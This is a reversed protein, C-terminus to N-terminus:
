KSAPLRNNKGMLDSYSLRKYIDTLYSKAEPYYQSKKDIKKFHYGAMELKDQKKLSMGAQFRAYEDKPNLKLIKNYSSFAETYRHAHYNLDALNRLAETNKPAITLAKQYEKKAGEINGVLEFLWGRFIYAKVYRPHHYSLKFYQSAALDYKKQDVYILALKEYAKIHKKDLALVKKFKKAALDWKKWKKYIMGLQYHSSIHQGDYDLIKKLQEFSEEFDRMEKYIMALKYRSEVHNEDIDLVKKFQKAASPERKPLQELLLAYDYNIKFEDPSLELADLFKKEAKQFRKNEVLFKALFYHLAPDSPKKAISKEYMKLTKQYYGLKEYVKALQYYPEFLTPRLKQAYEFYQAAKKLKGIKKYMMALNFNADISFPNQELSKLMTSEANSLDKLQFQLVALNTQAKYNQPHKKLELKYYQIAEYLYGLEQVELAKQYYNVNAFAQV